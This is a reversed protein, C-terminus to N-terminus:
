LFALILSIGKSWIDRIWRSAHNGGHKTHCFWCLFCNKKRPLRLDSGFLFIWIQSWKKRNSKGLSDLDRSINSMRSRSTSAFLGNFLVEFTFVCVSLCVFLCVYPCKSKYFSDAWLASAKFIGCVASVSESPLHPYYCQYYSVGNVRVQGGGRESYRIGGKLIDQEGKWEIKDMGGGM